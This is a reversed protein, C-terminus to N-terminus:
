FGMSKTPRAVDLVKFNRFGTQRQETLVRPQKQPKVRRRRNEKWSFVWEVIAGGYFALFIAFGVTGVTLSGSVIWFLSQTSTMNRIDYVNM